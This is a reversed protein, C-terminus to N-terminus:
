LKQYMIYANTMGLERHNYADPIEGIITFGVSQWLAVARQNSKVVINFQMSKYGLRKAEILSFEAMARGLGKGSHEPSVAYGANAVHAGLGPQNNQMFFTGAIHNDVVAVYCHKSPHCWYALMEDRGIEPDFAFTDGKRIVPELVAWIGDADASHAKRIEPTVAMVTM